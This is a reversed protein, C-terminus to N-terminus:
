CKVLCANDFKWLEEWKELKGWKKVIRRYLTSSFYGVERVKELEKARDTPVKPGM